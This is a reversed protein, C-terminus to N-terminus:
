TLNKACSRRSTIRVAFIAIQTDKPNLLSHYDKPLVKELEDYSGIGPGALDAKKDKTTMTTM